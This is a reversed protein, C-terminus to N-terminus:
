IDSIISIEGLLSSGAQAEELRANQVIYEAYHFHCDSLRTQSKAVGYVIYDMSNELCFDTSPLQERRWPIKGVWPNFRPRGCAPPTKVLQALLLNMRTVFYLGSMSREPNPAMAGHGNWQGRTGYGTRVTAEQGAYLNRLLCTFHALTGM